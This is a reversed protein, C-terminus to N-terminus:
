TTPLTPAARPSTREVLYRVGWWLASVVAVGEWAAMKHFQRGGPTVDFFPSLAPPAVLVAVVVGAAVVMLVRRRSVLTGEAGHRAFMVAILIGFASGIANLVVDNWDFYTPTGRPLAVFQYGEDVAGLTTAGLWAGEATPLGRALLYTLLAYQPYHVDEIANLVILLQSRRM